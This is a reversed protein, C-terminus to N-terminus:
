ILTHLSFLLVAISGQLSDRLKTWGDVNPNSLEKVAPSNHKLLGSLAYISKSRTQLTSTPSPTLFSLLTPLPNLALYQLFLYTPRAPSM